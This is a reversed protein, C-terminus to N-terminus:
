ARVLKEKLARVVMMDNEDIKPIYANQLAKVTGQQGEGVLSVNGFGKKREGNLKGYAKDLGEFPAVVGRTGGFSLEFDVKGPPKYLSYPLTHALTLTITQEGTPTQIRVTNIGKKLKHSLKFCVDKLNTGEPLQSAITQIATMYADNEESSIIDERRETRTILRNLDKAMDKIDQVMHQETKSGRTINLTELIVDTTYEEVYTAVIRTERTQPDPESLAAVLAQNLRQKRLTSGVIKIAQNHIKSLIHDQAVEANQTTDINAIAEYAASIAKDLHSDNLTSMISNPDFIGPSVTQLFDLESLRMRYAHLRTRFQDLELLKRLRIDQKPSLALRSLDVTPFNEAKYESFRAQM